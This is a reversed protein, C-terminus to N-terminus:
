RYSGSVNIFITPSSIYVPILIKSTSIFYISLTNKGASYFNKPSIFEVSLKGKLEAEVIMM